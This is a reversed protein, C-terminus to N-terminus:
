KIWQINLEDVVNAFIQLVYSDAKIMEPEIGTTIYLEKEKYYDSFPSKNLGLKKSSFIKDNPLTCDYYVEIDNIFCVLYPEKLKQKFKEILVIRYILNKDFNKIDPLVIKKIM